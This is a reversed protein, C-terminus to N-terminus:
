RSPGVTGHEPGISVAVRRPKGDADTYEGTAQLWAGAYPELRDFDLRENKM